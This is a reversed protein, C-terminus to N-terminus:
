AEHPAPAASLRGAAPPPAAADHALLPMESLELPVSKRATRTRVYAPGRGNAFQRAGGGACAVGGAQLLQATVVVMKAGVVVTFCIADSGSQHRTIAPSLFLGRSYLTLPLCM